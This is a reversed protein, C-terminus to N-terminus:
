VDPDVEGPADRGLERAHEILEEIEEAADHSRADIHAAQEDIPDVPDQENSTDPM